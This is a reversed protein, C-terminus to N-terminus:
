QTHGGPHSQGGTQNIRALVKQSYERTAIASGDPDDAHSLLQVSVYGRYNIRRLSTFTEEFDVEGLGPQLHHHLASM